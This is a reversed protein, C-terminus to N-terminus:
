PHNPQTILLPKWLLPHSMQLPDRTPTLVMALFPLSRAALALALERDQEWAPGATTPWFYSWPLWARKSLAAAIARDLNWKAFFLLIGWLAYAGRDSRGRCFEVFRNAQQGM